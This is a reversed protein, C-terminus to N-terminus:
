IGVQIKEKVSSLNFSAPAQMPPHDVTITLLPAFMLGYSVLNPSEPRLEAPEQLREQVNIRLVDALDSRGHRGRPAAGDGRSLHIADQGPCVGGAPLRGCACPSAANFETLYFSCRRDQEWRFFREYITVTSLSVTRTSGVGHPRNSTWVVKHIARFWEPWSQENDFIAFVMAPPADLEVVNKFRMPATDFFSTDVARCTFRM